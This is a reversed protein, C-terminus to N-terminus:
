WRLPLKTEVCRVCSRSGSSRCAAGRHASGDYLASEARRMLEGDDRAGLRPPTPHSTQPALESVALGAELAGDDYYGILVAKESDVADMVARIDDM